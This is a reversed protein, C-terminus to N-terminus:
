SIPVWYMKWGKIKRKNIIATLRVLKVMNAVCM